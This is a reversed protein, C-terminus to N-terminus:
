CRVKELTDLYEFTVGEGVDGECFACPCEQAGEMELFNSGM